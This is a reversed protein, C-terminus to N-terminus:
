IWLNFNILSVECLVVKMKWKIMDASHLADIISRTVVIECEM